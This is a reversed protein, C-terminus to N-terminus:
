HNVILKYGTNIKFSTNPGLTFSRIATNSNLIVTGANIIVDTNMDPIIGCGWNLPNEWATSVSGLWYDTFLLTYTDSNNGDVVCRYQYGYASSPMNIIQLTALTAGTYNSNNTINGFGSGTDMQWQYNTGTRNSTIATNGAPSCLKTIVTPFEYAGIDIVGVARKNGDLDTEGSQVIYSPDGAGILTSIKQLHLDPSVISAKTFIPVTYLSHADFGTTTKYQQFTTLSSTGWNVNIDSANNNPTFWCNYDFSNGSQPTISEKTLFVNQDNTYFINNKFINNSAKTIYVEGSGSNSYNNKFFTNNSITCNLVQGTTGVDYGGIAFGSEQNDYLLNERVTIGSASGDLECGVEIGWGNHYCINKEILIDKAGDVYIGGSTAYNSVDHHCINGFVKGNRAMDLAPNTSVQYNGACLIGINSNDHVRNNSIVFGDINGDVSISESFGTLNNYFECSDILLNSIANSATTGEGYAIFPQSNKSSTPVAAPNTTWSINKVILNKFTINQIHGTSSCDVQIGVADNRVLNQITINRIIINSQDQIDIMPNAGLGTGDLIVTENQYNRFEIPNGVTGSVNLSLEAHYTGGKIYVTSGATANDFAHQITKWATALGTGTNVDNGNTGDVYYSQQSKLTISILVFTLTIYISKMHLVFIDNIYSQM